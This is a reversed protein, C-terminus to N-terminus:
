IGGSAESSSTPESSVGEQQTTKIPYAAFFKECENDAGQVARKTYLFAFSSLFRSEMNVISKQYFAIKEIIEDDDIQDIRNWDSAIDITLHELDPLLYEIGASAKAFPLYEQAISVIQSIAIIIAWLAPLTEWISWAAVSACSVIALSAKICLTIKDCYQKYFSYYFFKYKADFFMNWYRERM